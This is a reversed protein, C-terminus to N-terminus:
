VRLNLTAATRPVGTLRRFLHLGNLTVVSPNRALLPLCLGSAVEGHGHVLDFRQTPRLARAVGRALESLTPTASHALYIRSARCGPLECLFDVYTEGGGGPHPLVHLVSREPSPM